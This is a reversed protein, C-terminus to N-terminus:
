VGGCLVMDSSSQVGALWGSGAVVAATAVVWRGRVVLLALLLDPPVVARRRRLLLPAPSPEPPPSRPLLLDPQPRLRRRSLRKPLALRTQKGPRRTAVSRWTSAAQLRSTDTGM